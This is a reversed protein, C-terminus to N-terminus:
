MEALAETVFRQLDKKLDHNAKRTSNGSKCTTCEKGRITSTPASPSTTGNLNKSVVVRNNDLCESIECYPDDSPTVGCNLGLRDMKATVGDSCCGYLTGACGGVISCDTNNIFYNLAELLENIAAEVQSISKLGSKYGCLTNNLENIGLLIGDVNQKESGNALPLELVNMAIFMKMQSNDVSPNNGTIPNVCFNGAAEECNNEYLNYPIASDDASMGNIKSVLDVVLNHIYQAAQVQNCCLDGNCNVIEGEVCEQGRHYKDFVIFYRYNQIKKMLNNYTENYNTVFTFIDEDCSDPNTTCDGCQPLLYLLKYLTCSLEDILNQNVIVIEGNKNVEYSTLINSIDSVVDNKVSNYLNSLECSNVLYDRMYCLKNRLVTNGCQLAYCTSVVDCCFKGNIVSNLDSILSDMDSTLDIHSNSMKIDIAVLKCDTVDQLLSNLIDWVPQCNQMQAENLEIGNVDATGEVFRPSLQTPNLASLCQYLQNLMSLLDSEDPPCLQCLQHYELQLEHIRLNTNILANQYTKVVSQICCDVNSSQLQLVAIRFTEYECLLQERDDGCDNVYDYFLREICDCNIGSFVKCVDNIKFQDDDDDPTDEAFAQLIDNCDTRSDTVCLNDLCETVAELEEEQESVYAELEAAGPGASGVELVYSDTLERLSELGDASSLGLPYARIRKAYYEPTNEPYTTNDSTPVLLDTVSHPVPTNNLLMVTANYNETCWRSKLGELLTSAADSGNVFSQAKHQSDVNHQELYQELVCKVYDRFLVNKDISTKLLKKKKECDKKECMQELYGESWTDWGANLQDMLENCTADNWCSDPYPSPEPAPEPEVPPPTCNQVLVSQSEDFDVPTASAPYEKYGNLPAFNGLIENCESDPVADALVAVYHVKNYCAAEDFKEFYKTGSSTIATFEFNSSGSADYGVWMDEKCILNSVDTPNVPELTVRVNFRPKGTPNQTNNEYKTPDAEKCIWEDICGLETSNVQLSALVDGLNYGNKLACHVLKRQAPTFDSSLLNNWLKYPVGAALRKLEDVNCLPENTPATPSLQMQRKSSLPM